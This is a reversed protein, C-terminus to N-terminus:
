YTGGSVMGYGVRWNPLTRQVVEGAVVLNVLYPAALM